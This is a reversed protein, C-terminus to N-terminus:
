FSLIAKGASSARQTRAPLPWIKSDFVPARGTLLQARGSDRRGGTWRRRPWIQLEWLSLSSIIIFNISKIILM